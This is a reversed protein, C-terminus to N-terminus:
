GELRVEKVTTYIPGKETLVSKKLKISKVLIEGFTENAYSNIISVLNERDQISKVRAITLHPSFERIERKFGLKVLKEELRQFSRKTSGDDKM